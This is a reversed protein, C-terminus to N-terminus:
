TSGPPPLDPFHFEVRSPGSPCRPFDNREVRSGVLDEVLRTDMAVARPFQRFLRALPHHREILRAPSAGAPEFSCLSGYRSRLGALHEARARPDDCGALASSWHARLAEFHQHILRDPANDGFLLRSSELLELALGMGTDPFLSDAKAALRYFIEPRGVATRPKRIRDLYGLRALDEGYQKAAMYSVGLSEALQSIAMGGSNEVAKLAAIWQPKALDTVAAAFMIGLNASDSAKPLSFAPFIPSSKGKGEPM